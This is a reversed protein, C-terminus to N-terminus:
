PLACQSALQTRRPRRWARLRSVSGVGGTLFLCVKLIADYNQLGHSSEIKSIIKILHGGAQDLVQRIFRHPSTTCLSPPLRPQHGGLPRPAPPFLALATM